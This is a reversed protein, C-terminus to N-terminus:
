KHPNLHPFCNSKCVNVSTGVLMDNTSLFLWWVWWCAAGYFSSSLCCSSSSRCLRKHPLHFVFLFQTASTTWARLLPYAAAIHGQSQFYSRAKPAYCLSCYKCSLSCSGILMLQHLSPIRVIIGNKVCLVTV